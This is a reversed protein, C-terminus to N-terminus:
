SREEVPEAPEYRVGGAATKYAYFVKQGKAVKAPITIRRQSANPSTTTYVGLFRTKDIEHINDEFTAVIEAEVIDLADAISVGTYKAYNAIDNVISWLAHSTNLADIQEPTFHSM